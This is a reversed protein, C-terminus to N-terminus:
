IHTLHFHRGIHNSRTISRRKGFSRSALLPMWSMAKLDLKSTYKRPLFIGVISVYLTLSYVFIISTFISLRLVELTLKCCGISRAFIEIHMLMAMALGRRRFEAKVCFDHINLLPKCAFTSFGEFCIAVGAPTFNSTAISNKEIHMNMRIRMIVSALFSINLLQLLRCVVRVAILPFSIM